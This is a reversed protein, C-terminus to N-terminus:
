NVNCHFEVVDRNQINNYKTGNGSYDETFYEAGMAHILPNRFLYLKIFILISGDLHM